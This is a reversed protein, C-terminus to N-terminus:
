NEKLMEAKLWDVALEQSKFMKYNAFQTRKFKFYINGLIRQHILKTVVGIAKTANSDFMPVDRAEKTIGGNPGPIVLIYLPYSAGIQLISKQVALIQPVDLEYEDIFLVETIGDSRLNITACDTTHTEIIKRKESM